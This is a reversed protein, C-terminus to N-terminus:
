VSWGAFDKGTFKRLQDIDPRLEECLSEREVPSLVPREIPRRFYKGVRGIVGRLVRNKVSELLKFELDSKRSKAGSEHFRKGLISEDYESSLKLFTCIEGFIEVPQKRLKESQVILIQDKSYFELFAELQFYYKSTLVYNSKKDSLAESFSLSERGHSYNHVYHSILREIPDRLVYILKIDPLVSHMREPVNPSLHRKTYNPSAEFACLSDNESWLSEYWSLGQSFHDEKLFFDTEKVSSGETGPHSVLYHFLSTTGAKMAGIIIFKPLM